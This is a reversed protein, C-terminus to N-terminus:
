QGSAEAARIVDNAWAQDDPSLPPVCPRDYALRERYAGADYARAVVAQLDLAVDPDGDALPVRIKPLPQRVTRRYVEYDERLDDARNVCVLYDYPGLARVEREPVRVVHRGARLLDIEVLHADSALVERQKTRYSKRGRGAYKNSPSVLEIVTVVKQGSQRDLITVYSEHIELGAVRVLEPADSELVAVSGGTQQSQRRKLLVDPVINRDTEEVFVREELSAIYRPRLRPQLQEALYVAAANHVGPWLAPEELYPDMGPFIMAM